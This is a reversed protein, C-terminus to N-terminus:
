SEPKINAAKVVPTWTVFEQKVFDGFKGSPLFSPRSGMIAIKRKVEPDQLATEIASQLTAVAADLTKAPYFFGGWSEATLAPYGEEALTPIEPALPSREPSVIALVRMRGSKHYEVYEALADIGVELHGGMLDSNLPPGGKYPVHVWPMAAADALRVFSLHALSGAGSTGVSLRSKNAKAYAVLDKVSKIPLAPSVAIALPTSVTRAVPKFDRVLDYNLKGEYIVSQMIISGITVLAVSGDAPMDKVLGVALRGSAGPRNEVIVPRNLLAPLKESFIRAVRDVSGGAPFAVVLTLPKSGSATQAIVGHASSGLVAAASAKLVFRRNPTFTRVENM